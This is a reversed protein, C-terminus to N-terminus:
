LLLSQMVNNSAETSCYLRLWQANRVASAILASGIGQRRFATAVCLISLLPWGLFEAPAVKAYGVASGDVEAVLLSGRQMDIRRDGIFEDLTRLATYDGLQCPRIIPKPRMPGGATQKMKSIKLELSTM